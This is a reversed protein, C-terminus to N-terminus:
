AVNATARRRAVRGQGFIADVAPAMAECLGDAAGSGVLWLASERADRWRGEGMASAVALLRREDASPYLTEDARFPRRGYQALYRAAREFSWAAHRGAARGPENCLIQASARRRCDDAVFAARFHGLFRLEDQTM